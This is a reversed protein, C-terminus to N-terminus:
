SPRHLQPQAARAPISLDLVAATFAAPNEQPLNHGAHPVRRHTRPGTFHAASASGDTAPFNGDAEGDLTISPVPIGPQCALQREIAGYSPAGPALGLRHRYSHIVVDVYDENRFAEATRDLLTDGFDWEPSNRRWIVEAIDRRNATLGRRGRETAFYHFYWFGAELDPRLPQAAATIDQILYSNVSVLGACREPWLAAVVNAARAGWDYGALVARPLELADMLAVVDAGLAAQQGSRPTTADLFRTPGHGRLYPVIVRMGAAALQPAADVYSHVDYPFGHLLLVAPGEAPGTEFYAIDLVGARVTHPTGLGTSGVSPTTAAPIM